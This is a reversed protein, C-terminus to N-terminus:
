QVRSLETAKRHFYPLLHRKKGQKMNFITFENPNKKILM